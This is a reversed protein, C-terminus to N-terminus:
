KISKVVDISKDTIFYINNNSKITEIDKVGFIFNYKKTSLFRLNQSSLVLFDFSNIPKLKNLGYGIILGCKINPYNSKLYMLLEFNFSCIYININKYHNILSMTEDVLDIYDNGSEKLEILLVKDQFIALIEDLTAISADSKGYKYQKLEQLTKYKVIGSGNSSFDIVPDHFLVLKKDKTIRVDIEIGDIYNTNLCEIIAEKSNESFQHNNNARHAILFMNDGILNIFFFFFKNEEEELLRRQSM